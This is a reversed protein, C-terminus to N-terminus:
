LRSFLERWALAAVAPVQGNGLGTLRDVRHAVGHAVRGVDPEASWWRGASSGASEVLPADSVRLAEERRAGHADPYAGPAGDDRAGPAASPRRGHEHRVGVCCSDLYARKSAACRRRVRRASGVGCRVGARGPRRTRTWARSFHADLSAVALSAAARAPSSRTSASDLLARSVKEKSASTKESM